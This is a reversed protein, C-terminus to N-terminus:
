LTPLRAFLAGNAPEMQGNKANSGDDSQFDTVTTGTTGTQQRCTPNCARRAGSLIKERGLAERLTSPREYIARRM